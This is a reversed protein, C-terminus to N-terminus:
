EKGLAKDLAHTLSGYEFRFGAKLIKEASVRSGKLVVDAMSGLASKLLFGPVPPHFGKRGMASALTSMFQRHTVHEPAVANWSGSMNDDRIVKLYISCLDSIHIWPMYQKGGGLIPFLEFRAPVLMKALASDSREMVVGTRIKVTRIGSDAFMGAAEEWLRCTTGLFDGAPSDDETYIHESTLAGYYGTASASIFGRLSINNETVTKHLLKASDVRSRVIEEMRGATWSKEGINAGALHVIYDVGSLAVPDLIGKEPDWRYVRVKGFQDQKRSLHSVNYGNELLLSTLYRGILGSGGTIMVHMGSKTFSVNM